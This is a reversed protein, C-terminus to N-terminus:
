QLLNKRQLGRNKSFCYVQYFKVGVDIEYLFEALQLRYAMWSGLPDSTESIAVLLFKNTAFLTSIESIMWRGAEQDWLVIPDGSSNANFQSWLNNLNPMDFLLTGAKDFVRLYAGDAVNTMQLIHDPSVDTVPDPPGIVILDQGLGEWVTDPEVVTSIQRAAQRSLLPDGERPLAIDAFPRPMPHTLTFNPVEKPFLQRSKEGSRGLPQVPIERLPRSRGLFEMRSTEAPYTATHQAEAACFLFISLFLLPFLKKM